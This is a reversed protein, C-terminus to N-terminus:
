VGVFLQHATPAIVHVSILVYMYRSGIVGALSDASDSFTRKSGEASM